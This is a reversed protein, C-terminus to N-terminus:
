VFRIPLQGETRSGSATQNPLLKGSGRAPFSWLYRDPLEFPPFRCTSGSRVWVGSGRSGSNSGRKALRKPRGESQEKRRRKDALGARVSAAAERTNFELRCLSRSGAMLLWTLFRRAMNSCFPSVLGGSLPLDGPWGAPLGGRGAWGGTRGVNGIGGCKPKKSTAGQWETDTELALMSHM